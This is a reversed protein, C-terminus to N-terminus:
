RDMKINVEWRRRPKGVQRKEESVGVLVSYGGRRDGM